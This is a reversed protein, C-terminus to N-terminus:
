SAETAEPTAESAAGIATIPNPTTAETDTLFAFLDDLVANALLYTNARAWAYSGLYVRGDRVASLSQWLPGAQFDALYQDSAAIAEDGLAPFTFLIIVDGDFVDFAEESIMAYTTNGYAAMSADSDLAQSAPRGLGVDQLIFGNPADLTNIMNFYSSALVLSVETDARDDGLAAQLEAVRADYTAAMDAYVDPVNFVDSWFETASKWDGEAIGADLIVTPAIQSLQDYTMTDNTYAAILDPSLTLLVELNVPWDLSQAPELRGALAPLAAILEDKVYVGFTAVLEKDTFLLLEAASTDLAVIRQPNEPICVPDTALLAHDFLRFGPECEAADQAASPGFSALMVVGLLMVSVIRKAANVRDM